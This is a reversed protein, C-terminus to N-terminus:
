NYYFDAPLYELADRQDRRLTSCDAANGTASSFVGEGLLRNVWDQATSRPLATQVSSILSPLFDM